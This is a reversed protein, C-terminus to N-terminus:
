RKAIGYAALTEAKAQLQRRKAVVVAAKSVVITSRSNDKPAVVVGIAVLRSLSRAERAVLADLDGDDGAFSGCHLWKLSAQLSESGVLVHRLSHSEALYRLILLVELVFVLPKPSLPAKSHMQLHEILVPLLTVKVSRLAEFRLLLKPRESWQRALRTTELLVLVVADHQTGKVENTRHHYHDIVGCVVDLLNHDLILKDALAVLVDEGITKHPLAFIHTLPTFLANMVEAQAKWKEIVATFWSTIDSNEPSFLSGMTQVPYQRVLILAMDLLSRISDIERNFIAFSDLMRRSIEIAWKEGEAPCNGSFLMLGTPRPSLYMAVLVRLALVVLKHARRQPTQVRSFRDMVNLLDDLLKQPQLKTAHFENSRFLAESARLSSEQVRVSETHTSRMDFLDNWLDLKGAQCQFRTSTQCALYIVRSLTWQVEEERLHMRVLKQILQVSQQTALTSGVVLQAQPHDALANFIRTVNTYVSQTNSPSAELASLAENIEQKAPILGVSSMLKARQMM